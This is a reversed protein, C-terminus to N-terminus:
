RLTRGKALWAEFGNEPGPTVRVRKFGDVTQIFFTLVGDEGMLWGGTTKLPAEGQQDFEYVVRGDLWLQRDQTQGNYGLWFFHKGDPTFTPMAIRPFNGVPLYRDGVIFGFDTGYTTGPFGYNVTYRSDPSWIYRIPLGSRLQEFDRLTSPPGPAHGVHVTGGLQGTIDGGTVYAFRKGDPSFSFDFTGVRPNLPTVKGDVVVANTQGTSAMWGVRGEKTFSPVLPDNLAFGTASETSDIVVFRKSAAVGVYVVHKSDPTFWLSDIRDYTRGPIGDIAVRQRGGKPGSIAAFRQGDPSFILFPFENSESGAIVKGDRVFAKKQYSGATETRAVEVVIRDGVPPVHVRVNNARAIVRGNALLEETPLGERIPVARTTFLLRGDASFVPNGGLAAAPKGDVHLENGGNARSIVTYTYREGDPSLTFDPRALAPGPVGDWWARSPTPDGPQDSQSAFHGIWHKGSPSFLIRMSPTVGTQRNPAIKVTPKGDVMYVYESGTDGIYAFRSGDPSFSFTGSAGAGLVRDFEPGAVGDYTAVFRSGKPVVAALHGGKDPITYMIGDANPAVILEEVRASGPQVATSPPAGAATAPRTPTGTTAPTAGGTAPAAPRSGPATARSSDTVAKGKAADKVAKARDLISKLKDTAKDVKDTKAQAHAAALPLISLFACAALARRTARSRPSM